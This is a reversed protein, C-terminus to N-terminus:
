RESVTFVLFYTITHKLVIFLIINLTKSATPRFFVAKDFAVDRLKASQICWVANCRGPVHIGENSLRVFVPDQSFQFIGDEPIDSTHSM